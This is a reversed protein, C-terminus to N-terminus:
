KIALAFQRENKRNVKRGTGVMFQLRKFHVREEPWLTAVANINVSDM